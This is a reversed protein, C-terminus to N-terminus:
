FDNSTKESNEELFFLPLVSPLLFTMDTALVVM